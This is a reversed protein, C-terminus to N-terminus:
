PRIATLEDQPNSTIAHINMLGELAFDYFTMTHNAKLFLENEIYKEILKM